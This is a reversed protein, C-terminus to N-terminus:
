NKSPTSSLLSVLDRSSDVVRVYSVADDYWKMLWKVSTMGLEQVAGRCEPVDLLKAAIVGRYLQEGYENDIYKLRGTETLTWWKVGRIAFFGDVIIGFLRSWVWNKIRLDAGVYSVVRIEEDMQFNIEAEMLLRKFVNSGVGSLWDQFGSVKTVEQIQPILFYKFFGYKDIEQLFSIEQEWGRWNSKSAIKGYFEKRWDEPRRSVFYAAYYEQVSKHVFYCRGGEELILGTVKRVDELFSQAECQLQLILCGEKIAAYMEQVSLSIKGRIKTVFCTVEFLERMERDSLTCARFRAFGPKTSDHRSLLLSFIGDFFESMHNPIRQEAKYTIVLLTAMLPTILLSMLEGAHRRIGEMLKNAMEPDPLLREIILPLDTRSLACLKVVRFFSSRQIDSDPRATVICRVKVNRKILSEIDDIIQTRRSPKTEDFGDLLLITPLHAIVFQVVDSDDPFGLDVLTKHIQQSISDGDQLRRLEIFLPISVGLQLERVCLYRLFISKGQGVTGEIVINQQAGLDNICNIEIPTNEILVKSPYYFEMLDVDRDM